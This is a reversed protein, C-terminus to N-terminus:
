SLSQSGWALEAGHEDSEHCLYAFLVVFCFQVSKSLASLSQTM